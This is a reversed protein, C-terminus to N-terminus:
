ERYEIAGLDPQEDALRSNGLIDEPIPPPQNVFTASGANRAPSGSGITYVQGHSDSFLPDTNFVMNSFRGPDSQNIEDNDIKLLSYEFKWDFFTPNNPIQGLELENGDQKNGYIIGNQFRFRLPFPTITEDFNPKGNSLYVAPERRVTGSWYNAITVHRFRYDGGILAMGYSGCNSIINNWGELEYHVGYLGFAKMNKIRTNTLTLKGRDPFGASLETLYEAQIGINGNKIVAYNIKNNKSGQNIWIRDWQGAVNRYYDEKRVGQFVVTDEKTGNVEITGGPYIWIGSNNYLYVQTGERIRLTCTDVALYGIIVVPREKTWETGCPLISYAPLGNAAPVTPRYFLANRGYAVLKVDQVNGNTEFVISDKVIFPNAENNPDITVEVFVFISDGGEIEINVAENGPDGDINLRYPSGNAGALRVRSIKVSRDNPNYVKFRKTVSGLTVFVTDFYVTDVSFALKAHPSTDITDPKCSNLLFGALLVFFFLFAVYPKM